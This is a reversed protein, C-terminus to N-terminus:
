VGERSEERAADRYLRCTAEETALRAARSRRRAAFIGYALGVALLIPGVIEMITLLTVSQLAESTPTKLM